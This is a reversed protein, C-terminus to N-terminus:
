VGPRAARLRERGVGFGILRGPLDRLVPLRLLLRLPLPLRFPKGRDLAEAVLNRQLFGQVAQIVRVPWERRRQVAALDEVTVVGRRLPDGLRNAAAVADQVAYNIGVGGVPSMVHAADGILLLGPVYWKPLRSSEVSLLTLAQWDAIQGVRDALWPVVATLERRFGEIGHSRLEQYGGKPIVFGVQWEAPRELLVCFRGTGVTLGQDRPDGPHRPLRLWVVDMPPSTRVPELGALKRLKSFRGDAGVTLVARVEHDAGDQRYVVGRVVGGEQILHSAQAGMEIRLNPYRRGHRALFDLFQAQPLLMVYPFRTPLRSLDAMTYAAAPTHIVFQRLEGHPLQHLERALGLRDLLELTTPHITDGRFDRDFDHHAELLTVEVGQRALLLALFMGGPGGGVVVCGTTRQHHEAPTRKANM